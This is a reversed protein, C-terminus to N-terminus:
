RSQGYWTGSYTQKDLAEFLRTIDSKTHTDDPGKQIDKKPDFMGKIKNSIYAVEAADLGEVDITITKSKPANIRIQNTFKIAPKPAKSKFLNRLWLM